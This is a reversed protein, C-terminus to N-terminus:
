FVTQNIVALGAHDKCHLWGSVGRSHTCGMLQTRTARTVLRVGGPLPTCLGVKSGEPINLKSVDVKDEGDGGSVRQLEAAAGVQVAGVDVSLRDAVDRPSSSVYPSDGVAAAAAAAAAAASHERLKAQMLGLTNAVSKKSEELAGQEIVKRLMTSRHFPIRLGVWVTVRDSTATPSVEWRSEVRFYDGYPIDAMVQSTDIVLVGGRCM